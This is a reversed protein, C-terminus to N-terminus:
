FNVRMLIIEKTFNSFFWTRYYPKEDSVERYDNFQLVSSNVRTPFIEFKLKGNDYIRRSGEKLNDHIGTLVVASDNRFRSPDCKEPGILKKKAHLPIGEAKIINQKYIASVAKCPKFDADLYDYSQNECYKIGSCSSLLLFVGLLHYIGLKM